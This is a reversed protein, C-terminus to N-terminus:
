PPLWGLGGCYCAINTVQRQIAAIGECHPCSIADAPRVPVLAALEPYKLSGRYLAANRLRPDRVVTPEHPEDWAYLIVEGDPRVAFPGGMDGVWPLAGFKAVVSRLDLPDHTDDALYEALRRKIEASLEESISPSTM